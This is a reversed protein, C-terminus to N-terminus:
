PGNSGGTWSKIVQAPTQSSLGAWLLIAGLLAILIIVLTM